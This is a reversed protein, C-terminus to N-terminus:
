AHETAKAQIDRDEKRMRKYADRKSMSGDENCTPRVQVRDKRFKM